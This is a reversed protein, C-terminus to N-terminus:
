VTGSRAFSQTSHVEVAEGTIIEDTMVGWDVGRRGEYDQLRMTKYCWNWRMMKSPGTKMVWTVNAIKICSSRALAHFHPKLTVQGLSPRVDVVVVGPSLGYIYTSRTATRKGM